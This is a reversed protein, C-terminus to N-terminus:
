FSPSKCEPMRLKAVQSARNKQGNWPSSELVERLKGSDCVREIYPCEVASVDCQDPVFLLM